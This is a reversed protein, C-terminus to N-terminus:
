YRSGHCRSSSSIKHKVGMLGMRLYLGIYTEIEKGSTKLERGNKMMAYNNTKKHVNTIMEDTILEKFFQYPTKLLDDEPATELQGKFTIDTPTFPMDLWM